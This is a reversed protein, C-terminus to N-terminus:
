NRESDCISSEFTNLHTQLRGFTKAKHDGFGCEFDITHNKGSHVDMSSWNESFIDCEECKFVADKCIHNKLHVKMKKSVFKEKCFDYDNPFVHTKLNSHKQKIHVKLGRKSITQFECDKCKLFIEENKEIYKIKNANEM